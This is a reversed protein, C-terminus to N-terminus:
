KGRKPLPSKTGTKAKPKPKAKASAQTLKKIATGQSRNVAANEKASAAVGSLQGSTASEATQTQSLTGQLTALQSELSDYDGSTDDYTATGAPQVTDTSGDGTTASSGSSSNKSREYLALGAVAALGAGGAVIGKHSKIWAGAPKKGAAAAPPIPPM